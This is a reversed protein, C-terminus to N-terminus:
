RPLQNHNEFPLCLWNNNDRKGKIKDGLFELQSIHRLGFKLILACLLHVDVFEMSPMSTGPTGLFMGPSKRYRSMLPLSDGSAKILLSFSGCDPFGFNPIQDSRVDLGNLGCRRSKASM